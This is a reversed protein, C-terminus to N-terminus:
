SWLWALGLAGFVGLAADARLRGSHIYAPDVGHIRAGEETAVEFMHVFLAIAALAGHVLPAVLFLTLAMKAVVIM